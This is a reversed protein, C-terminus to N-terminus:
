SKPKINAAQVVKAWRATEKALFAEFEQPSSGITEADQVQLLRDAVEPIKLIRALEANLRAIVPKPTGAAVLVGYWNTANVQPYGQEAFTPMDPMARM